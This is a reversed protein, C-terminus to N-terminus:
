ARRSRNTGCSEQLAAVEDDRVTHSFHTVSHIATRNNRGAFISWNPRQPPRTGYGQRICAAYSSEAETGRM